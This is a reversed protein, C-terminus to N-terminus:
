TTGRQWQSDSECRHTPARHIPACPFPSASPRLPPISHLSARVPPDALAVAALAAAFGCCVPGLRCRTAVSMVFACRETNPFPLSPARAEDFEHKAGRPPAWLSRVQLTAAVTLMEESCGMERCMCVCVCVVLSPLFLTTLNSSRHCTLWAKAQMPQIPSSRPPASFSLPGM